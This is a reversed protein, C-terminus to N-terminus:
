RCRPTSLEVGEGFLERARAYDEPTDIEIWTGDEFYQAQLAQQPIAFNLLHEWNKPLNQSVAFFEASRRLLTKRGEESFHLVGIAEGLFAAAEAHTLARKDIVAAISRGHDLVVKAAEIDDVSGTGVLVTNAPKDKLFRELVGLEYILDGDIAICPGAVYELGLALSHGNGYESYRPNEVFRVEISTQRADIHARIRDKRYGVVLAVDTFGLAELNDLHHDILAKGAVELLCKPDLTVSNIRTGQGAVLVVASRTVPTSDV